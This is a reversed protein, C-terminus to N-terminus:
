AAPLRAGIFEAANSAHPHGRNSLVVVTYGSRPYVAFDASVGPASGRHGYAAEGNRAEVRLGLSWSAAGAPVRAATLMRRGTSGLLLRRDLAASFKHLDDATSYGGGAPLGVYFPLAKLGTATAGVLPVATDPESAFASTAIMGAPRFIRRELYAEWADGSVEELIAGLVIFGFNSYSWRAGPAHLAERRGFVRIFDSPRRLQVANREYEAGFFDGTGGTHTLLHEVTVARALPTDPYHPLLSAVTDELRLRRREILQLVAVATFMKSASGLCFRTRAGIAAGDPRMSGYSRRFLVRGRRGVVVVGSFRGAEEEEALKARLSALAEGEDVRPVFFGQPAPAGVFSLDTPGSGGVSLVVKSFRDWNRDRLWGTIQGPAEEWRLLDFGGSAERVGLDEDLYPIAEPINARVFDVYASGRPDNFAALWSEAFERSSRNGAAPAAPLGLLMLGGGM